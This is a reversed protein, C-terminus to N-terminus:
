SPQAAVRRASQGAAGAVTPGSRACAAGHLRVIATSTTSVGGRDGSRGGGRRGRWRGGASSWWGVPGSATASTAMRSALRERAHREARLRGGIRDHPAFSRQCTDDDFSTRTPIAGGGRSNRLRAPGIRVLASRGRRRRARPLREYTLDGVGAVRAGRARAAAVTSRVPSRQGSIRSGDGLDEEAAAAAPRDVRLLAAPADAGAASAGFLQPLVWCGPVLTRTSWDIAARGGFAVEFTQAAVDDAVDSGRARRCLALCASIREFVVEFAARGLPARLPEAGNAARPPISSGDGGV